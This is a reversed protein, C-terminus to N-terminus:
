RRDAGAVHGWPAIAERITRAVVSDTTFTWDVRQYTVTQDGSTSFFVLAHVAPYKKPLDTLADRYWAARDGGVALSGFEAVMVPKGFAAMRPYKTGFLEAFSWWQSWQAIPGFNLSGTAVWDVYADGPYYLDWYQYAVHPSWVWVVNEAGASRFREVVHRWAAIYEEKTNNQPGWPYRYPDNMEHAFRLFLPHGFKKAAAAWADVYFDYDGHAVAALGHRERADRLAILPHLGNDFETLWPEWTILPTSGLDHIATMVDLPFRHEARDGWASYLQIIPLTTGISSEVRVVGDLTQPIGGDYAGLFVVDPHRLRGASAEYPAFWALAASRGPGSFRERFRHEVSTAASGLWGLANSLPGTAGRSLSTLLGVAVIGAAVLTAVLGIRYRRRM